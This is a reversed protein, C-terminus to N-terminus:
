LVHVPRGKELYSSIDELVIKTQQAAIDHSAGGIHPTLIVNDLTLFPSDHKMPENVQTDIAAGAIVRDRLAEYLDQENVLGGRATNILRAEPKMKALAARDIMNQTQESLKCHLSLFDARSLLRELDTLEAEEDEPLERIYPDFALIKMGFGRARRAVRRAIAGYGVLGLIKDELEYGAFTKVPTTGAIDWPVRDWQGSMIYHHTQPIFRASCLILGMTLDAVANANRGPANCVFVERHREVAGRDINEVGGRTCCILKLGPMRELVYDDIEEYCIILVECGVAERVLEEPELKRGTHGWGGLRVENFRGYLYDLGEQTLQASVFVNM